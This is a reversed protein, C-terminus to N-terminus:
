SRVERIALGASIAMVTAIPESLGFRVQLRRSAQLLPSTSSSDSGILESLHDSKRLGLATSAAGPKM